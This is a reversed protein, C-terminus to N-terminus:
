KPGILNPSSTPTSSEQSNIDRDPAQFQVDLLRISDTEQQQLELRHDRYWKIYAEVKLIQEPTLRTRFRPDLLLQASWKFPNEPKKLLDLNIKQVGFLYDPDQKEASTLAKIKPLLLPRPDPKAHIDQPNIRIQNGASLTISNTLDKAARLAERTSVSVQHDAVIVQVDGDVLQMGFATGRVTAVVESAEVTFTDDSGLLQELRTWVKGAELLLQVGLGDNKPDGDPLLTIISGQSLLSMGYEPYLLKANGADVKISDGVLLEMNNKGETQEEGRLVTVISDQDLILYALATPEEAAVDKQPVYDSNKDQVRTQDSLDSYDNINQKDAKKCGAGMVVITMLAILGFFKIYQKM